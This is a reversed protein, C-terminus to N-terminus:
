TKENYRIDATKKKINHRILYKNLHTKDQFYCVRSFKGEKFELRIPFSAYPFDTSTNM